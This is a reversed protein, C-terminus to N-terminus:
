LTNFAKYLALSEQPRMSRSWMWGKEGGRGDTLEVPSVCSSQSLSVLQQRPLLPSPTPSSSLRSCSLRTRCLDNLVALFFFNIQSRNSNKSTQWHMPLVSPPLNYCHANCLCLVSFEFCISGSFSNHLWLGLNGFNGAPSYTSRDQSYIHLDSLAVHIHFEPSLGRWEKEPFVHISNENCHSVAV